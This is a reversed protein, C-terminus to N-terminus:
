KPSEGGNLFPSYMMLASNQAVPEEVVPTGDLSRVIRWIENHRSFGGWSEGEMRHGREEIEYRYAPERDSRWAGCLAEAGVSVHLEFAADTDNRIMLDRYPYVCTAGSGFPQTRGADPFVDFSHRYRETVTLPTHLTMWYILNSLQCLGGGVGYGYNGYFLVMGDVFGRRYSPRGIRRWYSLTEGPRLLMGDLLPAAIKLNVIKNRQYQMDVDRLQRLLPTEHRFCEYRLAQGANVRAFRVGGFHWYAYRRLTFFARGLATRLASRRVPRLRHPDAFDRRM